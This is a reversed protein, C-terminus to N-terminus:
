YSTRAFSSILRFVLILSVSVSLPLRVSLCVSLSLSLCVSHSQSSVLSLSLSLAVFVSVSFCRCLVCTDLTGKLKKGGGGDGVRGGGGRRGRSVPIIFYIYAGPRAHLGWAHLLCAGAPRFIAWCWSLPCYFSPDIVGLM